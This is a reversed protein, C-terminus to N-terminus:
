SNQRCSFETGDPDAERYTAENGKIWISRGFSAEYKSGSATRVLSGADITDGREMRVSPRTTDFFMTVVENAPTDGCAWFVTATPTELLWTAVLEGERRLYAAEICARPDGAKWCENRGKIWGRQTAKLQDEAAQAGADLARAAALAQAFRESLMVDLAALADDSCILKEADSQAKDCEFSPRAVGPAAPLLLCVLLFFRTVERRAGQFRWM